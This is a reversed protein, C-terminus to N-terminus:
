ADPSVPLRGISEYHVGKGMIDLTNYCNRGDIVIGKKMLKAYGSVDYGVVEPWETLIMCRYAGTVTDDISKCYEVGEPLRSRTKDGVVPDWAKVAAGEALLAPVIKLSPAERLDDTGPKFTLGLVAVTKGALTDYYKRSKKILVFKQEENVDIAAKVTKM